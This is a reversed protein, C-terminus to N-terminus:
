KVDSEVFITRESKTYRFIRNSISRVCTLYVTNHISCEMLLKTCASTPVFNEWSKKEKEGEHIMIPNIFCNWLFVLISNDLLNHYVANDTLKGCRVLAFKTYLDFVKLFEWFNEIQLLSVHRRLFPIMQPYQNIYVIPLRFIM